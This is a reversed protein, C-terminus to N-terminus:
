RTNFRRRGSLAHIPPAREESCVASAQCRATFMGMSSIRRSKRAGITTVTTATAAEIATSSRLQSAKKGIM